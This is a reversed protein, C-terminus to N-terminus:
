PLWEFEVPIVFKERSAHYLFVESKRTEELTVEVLLRVFDLDCSTNLKRTSVRDMCIPDGIMCGIMGIM